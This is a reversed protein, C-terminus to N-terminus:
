IIHKGAEWVDKDTKIIRDWDINNFLDQLKHLSGTIVEKAVMKEGESNITKPFNKLRELAKTFLNKSKEPTTENPIESLENVISVLEESQQIPLAKSAKDLVDLVDTYNEAYDYFNFENNYNRGKNHFDGKVYYNITKRNDNFITKADKSTEWRNQITGLVDRIDIDLVRDDETVEEYTNRGNNYRVLIKKYDIAVDNKTDVIIEKYDFAIDKQLQKLCQKIEKFFSKRNEGKVKIEIRKRNADAKVYALTEEKLDDDNDHLVIGQQWYYNKYLKNYKEAIFQSILSDPFYGEYQFYYYIYEETFLEEKVLIAPIDKEFQKPIFCTKTSPDIYALNFVDMMERLYGYDNESYEFKDGELKQLIIPFDETEIVGKLLETRHNTILKYVGASLWEPNLIYRSTNKFYRLTGIRDFVNLLSKTDGVIDKQKIIEEFYEVSIFPRNVFIKDELETKLNFYNLPTKTNINPLNTLEEEIQLRLKDVLTKAQEDNNLNAQRLSIYHFGVVFPYDAKLSNETLSFAQGNLDDMRNVVIIAKSNPAYAKIWDLWIDPTDETRPKLVILYLSENTIFFKHVQQQLWQGGFDWINIRYDTDNKKLKWRDIAIGVTASKKDDFNLGVLYNRLNSKGAEGEGLIMLKAENLPKEGKELNEFYIELASIRPEYENINLILQLNEDFPNGDFSYIISKSVLLEYLPNITTILNRSLNLFLINKLNKLPSIDVIRNNALILEKIKQLNQLVNINGIKNGHLHLETLNELNQLTSIDAIENDFLDLWTINRLRKLPEIDSVQNNSLALGSLKDLNRLPNLNSIQNYSLYLTELNQLDKLPTIDFIQNNTLGLEVINILNQIPNIDTILNNPLLLIKIRNLNKLPNIDVIKNNGLHLESIKELKELLRINTIGNDNLKLGIVNGFSDLSFQNKGMFELENVEELEIGYFDELELIEKPKSM